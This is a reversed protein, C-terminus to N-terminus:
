RGRSSGASSGGSRRSGGAGQMEEEMEPEAAEVLGNEQKLEQQRRRMDQLLPEWEIKAREIKEFMESEEEKVHHKVYEGLVTFTAKFKPDDPQMGELEAMLQKASNHEVEAEDILDEGEKGQLANRAAPYFLEEELTAHVTLESCTRRVLEECAQPDDQPEMKDFDRFHKKVQKHDEKLLELVQERAHPTRSPM